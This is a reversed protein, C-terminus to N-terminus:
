RRAALRSARASRIAAVAVEAITAEALIAVVPIPEISAAGTRGAPLVAAVSERKMRCARLIRKRAPNRAVPRGALLRAVGEQVKVGAPVRVVVVPM